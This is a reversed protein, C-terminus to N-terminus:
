GSGPSKAGAALDLAQGQELYPRPDVAHQGRRLQFHVQPQTVSGTSGVRAIVQGRKVEEGRHVLLKDNHAYASVWGGAHKILLLNGFGRLENGAYAVVGNDAARVSTGAPAAINMGDNHLGGPQPGFNSLVTGRVPWLFARGGRPPPEPVPGRAIRRTPGSLAAVEPTAAGSRGPKAATGASSVPEETAGAGAQSVAPAHPTASPATPALLPVTPMVAAAPTAQSKEPLASPMAGPPPAGAPPALAVAEIGTKPAASETANSVPGAAAPPISPAMVALARQEPMPRAGPQAAQQPAGEVPAPLALKQGSQIAFPRTLGNVQVLTSMDVGFRRAILTLTDGPQVTYFRQEPRRLARGPQLVYPPTLGNADILARAPVGERQAIRYLTDGPRVILNGSSQTAAQQSAPPASAVVPAGTPAPPGQSSVCAALALM